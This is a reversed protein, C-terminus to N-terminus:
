LHAIAVEHQGLASHAAGLHNYSEQKLPDLAVARGIAEVAQAPRGSQLCLAGLLHWADASEPASALIERYLQEALVLNGARHQALAANLADTLDPPMAYNRSL